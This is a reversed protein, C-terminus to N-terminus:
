IFFIWTMVSNCSKLFRYLGDAIRDTYVSLIRGETYVSRIASPFQRDTYVSLM